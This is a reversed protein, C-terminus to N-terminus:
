WYSGDARMEFFMSLGFQLLSRNQVEDITAAFRDEVNRAVMKRSGIGTFECDVAVFSCNAAAAAVLPVMKRFNHRDITVSACGEIIGQLATAGTEQM